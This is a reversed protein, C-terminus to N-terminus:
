NAAKRSQDAKPVPNALISVSDDISQGAKFRTWITKAASSEDSWSGTAMVEKYAEGDWMKLKIRDEQDKLWQIKRTWSRGTKPDIVVKKGRNDWQVIVPSFSM